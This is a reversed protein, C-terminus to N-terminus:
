FWIDEKKDPFIYYIFLAAADRIFSEVERQTNGCRLPADLSQQAEMIFQVIEQEDIEEPKRIEIDVM